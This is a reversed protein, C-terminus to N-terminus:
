LYSQFQKQKNLTTSEVKTSHDSYNWIETALEEPCALDM